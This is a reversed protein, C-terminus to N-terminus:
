GPSDDHVGRSCEAGILAAMGSALSALAINTDMRLLRLAEDAVCTVFSEAGTFTGAELPRAGRGLGHHVYHGPEGM